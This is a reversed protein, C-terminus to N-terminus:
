LEFDTNFLILRSRNKPSLLASFVINSDLVLKM